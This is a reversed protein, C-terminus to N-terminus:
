FINVIDKFDGVLMWPLEMDVVIDELDEWLENMNDENPSAYIATFLWEKGSLYKVKLHIYLFKNSCLDVILLNKRLAVMIGGVYGNNEMVITDDFEMSKNLKMPDSRMEMMVLMTPKHHSVCHDCYRFLSKSSAGIFNCVLIKNNASM